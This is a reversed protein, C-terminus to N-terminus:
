KGLFPACVLINFHIQFPYIQKQDFINVKINNYHLAQKKQTDTQQLLTNKPVLQIKVSITLIKQTTHKPKRIVMSSLLFPM